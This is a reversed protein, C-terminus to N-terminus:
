AGKAAQFRESQEKATREIIGKGEPNCTRYTEILAREWANLADAPSVSKAMSDTEKNVTVGNLKLYQEVKKFTPAEVELLDIGSVLADYVWQKSIDLDKAMDAVSKNCRIRHLGDLHQKTLKEM